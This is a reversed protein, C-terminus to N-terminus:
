FPSIDRAYNHAKEKQEFYKREDPNETVTKMTEYIKSAREEFSKRREQDRERMAREMYIKAAKEAYSIRETFCKATLARAWFQDAKKVVESDLRNTIDRVVDDAEIRLEELFKEVEM